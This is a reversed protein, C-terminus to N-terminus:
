EAFNSFAPTTVDNSSMQVRIVYSYIRWEAEPHILRILEVLTKTKTLVIMDMYYNAISCLLVDSINNIM